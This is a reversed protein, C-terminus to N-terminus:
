GHCSIEVTEEGTYSHPAHWFTLVVDDLTKGQHTLVRYVAHGPKGDVKAAVLRDIIARSEPGSLRIVALAAVGPPTSLAVITDTTMKNRRTRRMPCGMRMPSRKALSAAM